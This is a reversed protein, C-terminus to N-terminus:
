LSNGFSRGEEPQHAERRKNLFEKQLIPQVWLKRSALVIHSIQLKKLAMFTFGRTEASPPVRMRTLSKKTFTRWSKLTEQVPFLPGSSNQFIHCLFRSVPQHISFVTSNESCMERSVARLQRHLARERGQLM